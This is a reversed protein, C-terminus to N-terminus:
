HGMANELREKTIVYRFIAELYNLRSSTLALEADELELSTSLGNRFRVMALRYAEEAMAVTAEQSRLNEEEARLVDFLQQIQLAVVKEAKQLAYKAANLDARAQAVKGRNALGDFLPFSLSVGLGLSRAFRDREPFFKKSQQGQLTYNGFLSLYPFNNRKMVQHIKDAMSVQLRLSSIDPRKEYAEKIAEEVSHAALEYRLEDTLALPVSRDIGILRKLDLRALRIANEAQIVDPERNKVEVEARISDFRSALQQRLKKRTEAFHKRAQELSQRSIRLVDEALVASYYAEQVALVTQQKTAEVGAESSKVFFEAAKIAGGVRGFAYLVQNLSINLLFDNEEGIEIQITEDTDPDSFFLVPRLLNRTYAAYFDFHPLAAAYAERKRGRAKDLSSLAIQIDENKELALEVAEDLSLFLTDGTSPEPQPQESVGWAPVFPACVALVGVIITVFRVVRRNM